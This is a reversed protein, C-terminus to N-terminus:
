RRARWRERLQWASTKPRRDRTFVGKKNGDVRLLGPATAFDAFNWIQEGVVADIRDFVRHYMALVDAQYDETWPTPTITRLGLLTDAGYETMIIPKDHKRTWARLEDELNREAAGLDALNKYWGYYRNLLLVDFLGSIVDNDPTASMFNVFALPRTPDLRRAEDVLPEFYSRSATTTSEPENAISWIVVSPHNKDRAIMEALAQRHVEQTASNITFASFTTFVAEALTAGLEANLGVAPTEGIVVIGHRDAYELVEEAYPYHSTRFSNAGLWEMLAFDHVMFADDHGKGRVPSDEHKGFGTFYFPEGNILFRNGEVAVTRVGVPLAYADAPEEGTGRLEAHLRYLYGEGPRWPHVDEVTLGGTSGTARAVEAGDADRLVVRVDHEEQGDVQIQYDVIGTPGTLRTFVTIDSIYTRPTTYLWVNRHLGAYNFFDHFYRQRPGVPTQEVYGPPISQWSLTNDVVVTVRHEGGPEVLDTLDAEFPTYGGEHAAVENDDVWVAARHTASDFRLVIRQGEWRGPIRIVRQYWVDGVHDHIAPDPFLDNYSAPVPAERRGPLPHRWWGDTRGVGDTDVAFRWLGNLSTSERTPTARPRLM